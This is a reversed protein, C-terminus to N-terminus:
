KRDARRGSRFEIIGDIGEQRLEVLLGVVLDVLLLAAHRQGFGAHFLDLRQQAVSPCSLPSESYSTSFTETTCWM